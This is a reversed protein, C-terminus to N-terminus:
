SHPDIIINVHCSYNLLNVAFKRSVSQRKKMCIHLCSQLLMEINIFSIEFILDPDDRFITILIIVYLHSM